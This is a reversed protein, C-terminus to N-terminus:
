SYKNEMSSRRHRGYVIKDMKSLTKKLERTKIKLDSNLLKLSWCESKLSKVDQKLKKCKSILTKNTTIQFDALSQTSKLASSLEANASTLDSISQSSSFKLDTLEKRLSDIESSKSRLSEWLDNQVKLHDERISSLM